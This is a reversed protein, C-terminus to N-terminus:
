AEMQSRLLETYAYTADLTAGPAFNAVTGSTKGDSWTCWDTVHSSASYEGCRVTGGGVATYSSGLKKGHPSLAGTLVGLQAYAGPVDETGFFVPTEKTATLDKMLAQQAPLVTPSKLQVLSGMTPLESAPTVLVAHHTVVPTAATDSSSGTAGHAFWGAAAAVVIAGAVAAKRAFPSKMSGGKAPEETDVEVKVEDAPVIPPFALVHPENGEAATLAQDAGAIDGAGIAALVEDVAHASVALRDDVDSAQAVEPEPYGSYMNYRNYDIEPASSADQAPEADADAPVSDAHAFLPDLQFDDTGTEPAAAPIDLPAAWAAPVEEVADAGYGGFSGTSQFLSDAAPADYAVPPALEFETPEDFDVPAPPEYLSTDPQYSAYEDATPFESEAPEAVVGDVVDADVAPVIASDQQGTGQLPVGPLITVSSGPVYPEQPSVPAELPTSIM